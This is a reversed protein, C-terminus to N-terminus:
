HHGKRRELLPPIFLGLIGLAVLFGGPYTLKYKVPDYNVIIQATQAERESEPTVASLYFRYGDPSEYVQNMALTYEKEDKGSQVLIDAEYSKVQSSNPYYIQRTDLLRIHHPLLVKKPSFNLKIKGKLAPWALSKGSPDFPLFLQEKQKKDKIELAVVPRQDEIKTEPKKPSIKRSLPTELRIGQETQQWLLTREAGKEPTIPPLFFFIKEVLSEHPSFFHYKQLAELCSLTQEDSLHQMKKYIMQDSADSFLHLSELIQEKFRISAFLKELSKKDIQDRHLIKGLSIGSKRLLATYLHLTQSPTLPHKLTPPDPLQESVLFVQQTIKELVSPLTKETVDLSSLFPWQFQQLTALLDNGQHLRDSLEELLMSAWQAGKENEIQLYQLPRALEPPLPRDEPYLWEQATHWEVLLKVFTNPFDDGSQRCAKQLASLVQAMPENGRLQQSLQFLTAAIVDEKTIQDALLPMELVANYGNFGNNYVAVTDLTNEAVTKVFSEGSSDLAVIETQLKGQIFALFPSPPSFSDPIFAPVESIHYFFPLCSGKHKEIIAERVQDKDEASLAYFSWPTAMMPHLLLSTPSQPLVIHGKDEAPRLPQPPVGQLTVHSRKVWSQWISECDKELALTRIQIDDTINQWKGLIPQIFHETQKQTTAVIAQSQAVLVHESGSGEKVVMHGQLGFHAKLGVGLIIMLLGLHTLLFPIHRRKFPWRLFASFFINLFFGCLLLYFPFTAYTYQLAFLHSETQSELVTGVIAFLATTGVLFIAFHLHGLLRIIKM